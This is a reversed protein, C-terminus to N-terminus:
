SHYIDSIRYVVSNHLTNMLLIRPHNTGAHNMCVYVQPKDLRRCFSQTFNLNNDECDQYMGWGNWKHLTIVNM